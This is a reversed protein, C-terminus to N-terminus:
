NTKFVSCLQQKYKTGGTAHCRIISMAKFGQLFEILVTKILITTDYDKLLGSRMPEIKKILLDIEREIEILSVTFTGGDYFQKGNDLFSIYKEELEVLAKDIWKRNTGSVQGEIPAMDLLAKDISTKLDAILSRLNKASVKENTCFDKEIKEFRHMVSAIEIKDRKLEEKAPDVKQVKTPTKEQRVIFIGSKEFAENARLMSKKYEVIRKLELLANRLLITIEKVGPLDGGFGKITINARSKEIDKESIESIKPSDAFLKETFGELGAIANDVSKTYGATKSAVCKVYEVLNTQIKIWEKKIDAMKADEFVVKDALDKFSSDKTNDCFKAYAPFHCGCCLAIVAIAALRLYKRKM